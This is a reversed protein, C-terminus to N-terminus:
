CSSGALFGSSFAIQLNFGGTYADVDLIEGAFSLGDVLKSHMTSPNIEKVSIGGSTVIAMDIPCFNTVHFMIHKMIYTLYAREEKTISNVKKEPPINSMEVITHIMRKPLLKTLSNGFNKNINDKFDKLIRRNLEDESLAPKLDLEITYRETKMNRMHASASLIIPGTLGFHAFMMEGFDDYVQQKKSNRVTIKVNKLTLGVLQSIWEEEIQLPVLSPIIDTISHGLKEAFYYGDGTSGTKPYSMGGTAIIVREAKIIGHNKCRVGTIKPKVGSSNGLVEDVRDHIVKVGNETIFKTMANVIDVSKDSVPFVRNGREIKTPVGLNNFFDIVDHNTFACFASYMFRSNKTTNQILDDIDECANTVNCRGKGTIMLKKGLIKNQEVLIVNHGCKAATGAAMMGAPGGGIIVVRM